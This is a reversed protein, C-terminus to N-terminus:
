LTDGAQKLEARAAEVGAEAAKVKFKLATDQARAVEIQQELTALASKAKELAQEYDAPDIEFMVDGINVAQNDQVNIKCIQGRVRPAIGVVNAIAIADDTRPHHQVIAWVRLVLVVAGVIVLVSIIRGAVKRWQSPAPSRMAPGPNSQAGGKPTPTTPESM